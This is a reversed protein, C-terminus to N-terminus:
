SRPPSGTRRAYGRGGPGRLIGVDQSRGGASTRAGDGLGRLQQFFSIQEDKLEYPLPPPWPAPSTSAPAEEQRRQQQQPQTHEEMLGFDPAKSVTSGPFPPPWPAPATSDPPEEQLRQQQQPQTHKEMAEQGHKEGGLLKEERGVLGGDSLQM